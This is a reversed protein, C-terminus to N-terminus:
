RQSICGRRWRARDGKALITGIPRSTTATATAAVITSARVGSPWALPVVVVVRAVPDAEEVVEVELVELVVVVV